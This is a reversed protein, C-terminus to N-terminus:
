VFAALPFKLCSIFDKLSIVITSGPSFAAKCLSCRAPSYKVLSDANEQAGSKKRNAGESRHMQESLYLLLFHWGQEKHQWVTCVGGACRLSVGWVSPRILFRCENAICSFVSDPWESSRYHWICRGRIQAPNVAMQMRGRSEVTCPHSWSPAELCIFEFNGQYCNWMEKPFHTKPHGWQIGM